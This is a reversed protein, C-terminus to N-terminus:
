GAVVEDLLLVKPATALAGRWVGPAQPEGLDAPRAHRDAREALGIFQLVGKPGSILTMEARRAGHFAAVPVNERV